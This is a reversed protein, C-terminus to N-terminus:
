ILDEAMECHQNIFFRSIEFADRDKSVETVLEWNVLRLTTVGGLSFNSQRFKTKPSKKYKHKNM